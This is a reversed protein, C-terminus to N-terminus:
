TTTPLHYTTPKELDYTTPRLDYCTGGTAVLRSEHRGESMAAYCNGNGEYITSDLCQMLRADGEAM